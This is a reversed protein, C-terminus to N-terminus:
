FQRRAAAANRPGEPRPRWRPAQAATPDLTDDFPRRLLALPVFAAYYLVWLAVNSQVTAAKRALIQWRQWAGAM